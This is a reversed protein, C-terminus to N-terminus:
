SSLCFFVVGLANVSLNALYGLRVQQPKETDRSSISCLLREALDQNLSHTRRDALPESLAACSLLQLVPLVLVPSLWPALEAQECQLTLAPESLCLPSYM